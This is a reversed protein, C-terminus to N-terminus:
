SSRRANAAGSAHRRDDVEQRLLAMRALREGVQEGHPLLPAREVAAGHRPDTVEVVDGPRQADTGSEGAHLM